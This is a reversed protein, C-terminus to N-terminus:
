FLSTLLSCDSLVPLLRVNLAQRAMQLVDVVIEAEDMLILAELWRLLHKQSFTNVLALAEQDIEAGLLHYAWHRLAYQIYATFQENTHQIRLDSNGHGPDSVQGVSTGCELVRIMTTLCRKALVIHRTEPKILLDARTCRSSDVLFDPFSPHIIQIVGTDLKPLAIVSSLIELTSKSTGEPLGLLSDLTGTSVQDRLLVLAGVVSHVKAMKAKTSKSSIATDLVGQYLEDLPATPLSEDPKVISLVIDLQAEPDAADPDMIFKLATSIVIFVGSALAKLQNCKKLSPWTKDRAYMNRIEGLQEDVYVSVDHLMIDPPIENLPFTHTNQRLLTYDRFGKVIRPEPRSTIVFKLPRLDDAFTSLATLIVSVVATDCCEDLADIVVVQPLLSTDKLTRLPEVILKELQKLPQSRHIDPNASIAENVQNAFAPNSLSLQHAITPFIRYVVSRGGTRACFFSAGLLGLGACWLAITHAITSKGSGALGSIWLIWLQGLIQFISSVARTGTTEDQERGGIVWSQISSLVEKRTSTM